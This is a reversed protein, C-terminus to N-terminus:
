KPFLNNIKTRLVEAYKKDEVAIHGTIWGQLFEMLEAASLNGQSFKEYYAKLSEKLGEHHRKHEEAHEYNFQRFLKEEFSFHNHVYDNLANFIEDLALEKQEFAADVLKSLLRFLAQHQEDIVPINLSLSSDWEVLPM